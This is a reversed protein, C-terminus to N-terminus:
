LSATAHSRARHTDGLLQPELTRIERVDFALHCRSLKHSVHNSNTSSPNSSIRHVLDTTDIPSRVAKDTNTECFCRPHKRTSDGGKEEQRRRVRHTGGKEEKRRRAGGREKVFAVTSNVPSGVEM